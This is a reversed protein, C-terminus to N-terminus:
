VPQDNSKGAAGNVPRGLDDINDDQQQGDSSNLSGQLAMDSERRRLCRELAAFWYDKERGNPKGDHEWLFYATDRVSQEFEPDTWPDPNDATM